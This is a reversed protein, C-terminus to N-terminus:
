AGRLFCKYLLAVEGPDTTQVLMVNWTVGGVILVDGPAPVAGLGSAAILVAKDSSLVKTGDKYTVGSDKGGPTQLLGYCAYDTITSGLARGTAPDFTGASTIRLTMATGKAKIIKLAKKATAAYNM